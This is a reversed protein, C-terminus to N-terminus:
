TQDIVLWFSREEDTVGSSTSFRCTILYKEGKVGGDIGVVIKDGSRNETTKVLPDPVIVEFTTITNGALYDTLDFTYFRLTNPSKVKIPLVLSM